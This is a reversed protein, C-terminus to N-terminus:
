RVIGKPPILVLSARSAYIEGAYSTSILPAAEQSRFTRCRIVAVRYSLGKELLVM